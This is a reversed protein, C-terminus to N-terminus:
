LIADISTNPPIQQRSGQETQTPPKEGFVRNVQVSIAYNTVFAAIAAETATFGMATFFSAEVMM